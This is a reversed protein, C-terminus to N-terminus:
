SRSGHDVKASLAARGEELGHDGEDHQEDAGDADDGGMALPQAEGGVGPAEGPGRGDGLVEDVLDREPGVAVGPERAAGAGGEAVGVDAVGAVEELRRRADRGEGVV